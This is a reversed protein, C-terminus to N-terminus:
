RIKRVSDTVDDVLRAFVPAGDLQEALLEYLERLTKRDQESQEEDEDDLLKSLPGKKGLGKQKIIVEAFLRARTKRDANPHDRLVLAFSRALVALQESSFNLHKALAASSLSQLKALIDAGAREFRDVAGKQGAAESAGPTAPQEVDNSVPKSGDPPKPPVSGGGIRTM